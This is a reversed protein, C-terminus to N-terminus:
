PPFECEVNHLAVMSIIPFRSDRDSTPMTNRKNLAKGACASLSRDQTERAPLSALAHVIPAGHRVNLPARAFVLAPPRILQRSAPSKPLPPNVIAFDIVMSQVPVNAPTRTVEPLPMVM